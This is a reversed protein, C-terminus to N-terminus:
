REWDDSEFLIGRLRSVETPHHNALRAKGLNTNIIRRTARDAHALWRELHRFGTEPDAAVFVSIAFSLTKELIQNGTTKRLAAPLSQLRDLTLETQIYALRRMSSHALLPPDALTGLIARELFPDSQSSWKELVSLLADPDRLGLQQLGILLAERTRWRESHAADILLPEITRSDRTYISALGAAACAVPFEAASNVPADIMPTALWERLVVILATGRSEQCCTIFHGLVELNARPGPLRSESELWRWLKGMDGSALYRKIQVTQSM